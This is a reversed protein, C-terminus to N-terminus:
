PPHGLGCLISNNIHLKPHIEVNVSVFKKRHNNSQPHRIVFTTLFKQLKQLKQLKKTIVGAKRLIISVIDQYNIQYNRNSYHSTHRTVLAVAGLSEAYCCEAYRCDAYRCEAYRCETYCYEAHCCECLM